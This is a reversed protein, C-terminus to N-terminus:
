IVTKSNTTRETGGNMHVNKIHATPKMSTMVIGPTKVLHTLESGLLSVSQPVTSAKRERSNFETQRKQCKYKM